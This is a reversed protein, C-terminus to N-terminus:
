IEIGNKKVKIGPALKKMRDIIVQCYEPSLEMGFVKKNLQHGAVMVSGSGLFGDFCVEFPFDKFILGFLGVPKQTPHMRTKGETERSGERAMGNWMWKYLKAPKDFSTWALECDAFNGSNEKDWVVWCASPPLFSTFYNGGFIIINKFDLSICTAYFDRATEITADGIIESYVKAKVKNNGGVKGKFTAAKDGGVKGSGTNVIEVGYPPDTCILDPKYGNLVKLVQEPDTSNGCLLRHPGIDFLDGIVIDTKVEAPMEFDDDKAETGPFFDAPIDLGWAELKEPDWTKLAEFDWDGFPVNDEIIFRKKEEESLESAKKVWSDPILKYGLEVAAKFRMNGGLIMGADDIIIPRLEMMKPFDRISNMLKIFRDDKITRPNEPNVKIETIKM